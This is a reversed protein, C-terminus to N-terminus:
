TPTGKRRRRGRMQLRELVMYLTTRQLRLLRAAERVYGDALYLARRVLAEELKRVEAYYDCGEPGFEWAPADPARALLATAQRGQARSLRRTAEATRPHAPRPPLQLALTGENPGVVIVPGCRAVRYFGDDGYVRHRHYADTFERGDYTQTALWVRSVPVDRGCATCRAAQALPARTTLPQATSPMTM